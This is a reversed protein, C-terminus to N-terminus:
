NAARHKFNIFQGQKEVKYATCHPRVCPPGPASLSTLM